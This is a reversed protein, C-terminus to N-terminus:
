NINEKGDVLNQIDIKDNVKLDIKKSYGANVELVYKAPKGSNYTPHTQFPTTDKHIKIVTDQENVYIIDLPIKTNKMWFSKKGENTFIFLMGCKQCLSERNMLGTKLEEPTKAIEIFELYLNKYNSNTETTSIKTKTFYAFCILFIALVIFLKCFKILKIQRM